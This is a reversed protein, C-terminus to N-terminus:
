EKGFLARLGPLSGEYQLFELSAGGGTSIHDIREAAGAKELAAVSDGGGVVSYAKADAVAEAVATTGASFGDWEFVGMPGNWFVTAAGEIAHAIKERTRRGIDLGMKGAPIALDPLHQPTASEEFADAVVHDEPLIVTVGRDKARQLLTRATALKAEECRSDGISIGQAKLFTYAMAGGICITNVRPLLSELVGIKDSVKAGGVVAVFPTAPEHLLKNLAEIEKELLFGAGRTELRLPVGVVSAHARHCAGFADNIYVDFPEALRRAFDPDNNTEGSHFRLNELLTLDGARMSRVLHVVGDGVCDETLAVDRQLLRSLYAGVPELSLDPNVKGKPRGLHSALAVKAGEALAHRLTPLAARIRADSFVRGDKLPVNLDLRM